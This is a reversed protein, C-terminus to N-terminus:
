DVTVSVHSGPAGFLVLHWTGAGAPVTMQGTVAGSGALKFSPDYMRWAGAGAVRVSRQAAGAQVARWEAYGEAGLAVPNTAGAVLAPVTAQPRYMWAGWRVWEEGDRVVVDLDNLDRGFNGPIVVMMAARVDSGSPDLLHPSGDPPCAIVYGPLDPSTALGFRPSMDGLFELSDPRENVLLWTSGVRGSWASSLPPGPTRVRQALLMSGLYHRAGAAARIDLYQTGGGEVVRYSLLPMADATFWGDNRHLLGPVTPVFGGAGLALLTLSGDGEPRLRFVASGNAYEGSMAAMTGDPVPAVPTPAPPLPAPFSPIAGTEALARLLVREAIAGTDLGAGSTGMVVVGLGAEPAVVMEAVYHAIGGNKSWGKVGVAHLGPAAVTDWGLGFALAPSPDPNFTGATRDVGMAEVSSPRLIQAKGVTGRNLFVRLFAAMDTPTTYLGGSAQPGIFEQPQVVGGAYYRAYADAPFPATTFASHSMGLPALIEAQVYEAYSKGTVAQVLPEVLTFCDNCYVSMYGPAAKLREEALAALVQGAYEPLPSTAQDNRYTGGPLGASHSLLMRVTIDAFRPDAMRFSPLYRVLPADLDVLGKEALQMTAVAAFMKSVSGIGFMTADTAARRADLDALGFTRAWVVRDPTVLAIGLATTAGQRLVEQAAIEGEQIAASYTPAPANSCAVLIGLLVFTIAVRAFSRVHM